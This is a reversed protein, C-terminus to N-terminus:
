IFWVKPTLGVCIRTQTGLTLGGMIKIPCHRVEDALEAVMNPSVLMGHM